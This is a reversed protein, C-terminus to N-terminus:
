FNFSCHIGFANAAYYSNKQIVAPEVRLSLDPTIDFEFLQADVYADMISLGYLAVTGIISLDRYRRYYNKGRRLVDKLWTTDVSEPDQGYRLFNHWSNTEPDEDMIDKYAQFYDQYYRNNWSIAYSLGIFGGYLIPLKWYKRNYIQGLGPFIASFILTKRPDPKFEEKKDIITDTQQQIVVSQDRVPITDQPEEEIFYTLQSEDSHLLSSVEQAQSAYIGFLLFFGVIKWGEM